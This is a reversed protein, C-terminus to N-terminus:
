LLVLTSTKNDAASTIAIRVPVNTYRTLLADRKVEESAKIVPGSDSDAIAEDLLNRDYFKVLQDIPFSIAHLSDKVQDPQLMPLKLLEEVPTTVLATDQEASLSSEISNRHQIAADNTIPHAVYYPDVLFTAAIIPLAHITLCRTGLL